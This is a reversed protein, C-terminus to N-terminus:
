DGRRGYIQGIGRIMEAARGGDLAAISRSLGAMALEPTPILSLLEPALCDLGSAAVASDINMTAALHVPDIPGLLARRAALLVFRRALEPDFGANDILRAALRSVLEGSLGDSDNM